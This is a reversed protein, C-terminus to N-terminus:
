KDLGELFATNLLSVANASVHKTKDHESWAVYQGIHCMEYYFKQGQTFVVFDLGFMNRGLTFVVLDLGFMNQGLTFM